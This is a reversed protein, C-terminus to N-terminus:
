RKRTAVCRGRRQAAAMRKPVKTGKGKPPPITLLMPAIIGFTNCIAINFIGAEHVSKAKGVLAEVLAKSGEPPNLCDVWYKQHAGDFQWMITAFFPNHTPRNILRYALHVEVATTGVDELAGKVKDNQVEVYELPTQHSPTLPSTWCNPTNHLTTERGERFQLLTAAGGLKAQAMMSALEWLQQKGDVLEEVALGLDRSVMEDEQFATLILGMNIAM